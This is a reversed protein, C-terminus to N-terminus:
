ISKGTEDESDSEGNETGVLRNIQVRLGESIEISQYSITLDRDTLIENKDTVVTPNILNNIIFFINNYGQTAAFVNAGLFVVVLTAVMSMMKKRKLKKEKADNMNVVKENSTANVNENLNVNVNETNNINTKENEMKIEGKFFNDFVDNAKKSILDDEQFKSKIYFDRQNDM